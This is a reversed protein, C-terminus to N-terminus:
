VKRNSYLICMNEELSCPRRSRAEWGRLSWINRLTEFKIIFTKQSVCFLTDENLKSFFVILFFAFLNSWTGPFSLCINLQFKKRTGRFYFSFDDWESPRLFTHPCCWLKKTMSVLQRSNIVKKWFRVFLEPSAAVWVIM